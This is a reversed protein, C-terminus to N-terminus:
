GFGLRSGSWLMDYGGKWYFGLWDQSKDTRVLIADNLISMVEGWSVSVVVM